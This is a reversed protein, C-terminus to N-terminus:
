FPLDDSGDDEDRKPQGAAVRPRSAQGSPENGWGRDSQGNQDRPSMFEVDRALVELGANISGDSEREWPRAKLQGSVYVKMGKTILENLKEAREGFVIVRVWEVRNEWEGESNREGYNSAVNFRIVAQSNATYRLEPDNGVNGVLNATLM